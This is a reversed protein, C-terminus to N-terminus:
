VILCYFSVMFSPSASPSILTYCSGYAINSIQTVIGTGSLDTRRYDEGVGTPANGDDFWCYCYTPEYSAATNYYISFGRYGTSKPCKAECGAPTDVDSNLSVSYRLYDYLNGASDLCYGTGWYEYGDVQVGTAQLDRETSTIFRAEQTQLNRANQGYTNTNSDNDEQVIEQTIKIQILLLTM